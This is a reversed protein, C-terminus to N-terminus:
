PNEQEKGPGTITANAMGGGVVAHTLREDVCMAIFKFKSQVLLQMVGRFSAAKAFAVCSSLFFVLRM